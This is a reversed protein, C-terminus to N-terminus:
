LIEELNLFRPRKVEGNSNEIILKILDMPRKFHRKRERREQDKILLDLEKSLDGIANLVKRKERKSISSNHSKWDRVDAGLAVLLAFLEVNVHNSQVYLDFLSEGLNTIRLIEDDIIADDHDEALLALYTIINESIDLFCDDNSRTEAQTTTLDCTKAQKLIYDKFFTSSNENNINNYVSFKTGDKLTFYTAKFVEPDLNFIMTTLVSQDTTAGDLDFGAKQLSKLLVIFTTLQNKTLAEAQSPNSRERETDSIFNKLNQLKAFRKIVQKIINASDKLEATFGTNTNELLRLEFGGDVLLKTFFSQHGKKAMLIDADIAYKLLVEEQNFVESHIPDITNSGLRTFFAFLELDKKLNTENLNKINPDLYKDLILAPITILQNYQNVYDGNNGEKLFFQAIQTRGKKYAYVPYSEGTSAHEQISVKKMLIFAGVTETEGKDIASEFISQMTFPEGSLIPMQEQQAKQQLFSSSENNKKCAVFLLLFLISLVKSKM